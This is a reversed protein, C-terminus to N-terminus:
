RQLSAQRQKAARAQEPSIIRIKSSREAAARKAVGHDARAALRNRKKAETKAHKANSAGHHAAYEKGDTPAVHPPDHDLYPRGIGYEKGHADVWKWLLESSVYRQARTAGKVSVIDAALGHGYGGRLSGGHYSRDSAAKLGAAIAQRYDDRFASTIGPALGAEELARFAHYLKGKFGREMGGIVYDQISMGAKEAAKPDKWTFDEDILKTVNKMVTRTKGNKKVTVKKKETVKITDLKPTRQYAAWLYQDICVDPVLCEDLTELSSVTEKAENQKVEDQASDPVSATAVQAAAEEAPPMPSAAAPIPADAAAAPVVAAVPPDSDAIAVNVALVATAPAQATNAPEARDILSTTHLNEIPAADTNDRAPSGIGALGAVMWGALIVTGGLAAFTAFRQPSM